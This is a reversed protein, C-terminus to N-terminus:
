ASRKARTMLMEAFSEVRTRIQQRNYLRADYMDGELVIIPAQLEKKLAKKLMLSDTGIVKCPIHNFWLIGDLNWEQYLKIIDHIRGTLSTMIGITAFRRAITEVADECIETPPQITLYWIESLPVAIGIEEVMKIIGPDTLPFHNGWLVRPTGKPLIGNGEDV